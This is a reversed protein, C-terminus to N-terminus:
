TSLAFNEWFSTPQSIAGACIIAGGGMQVEDSLIARPHVLRQPRLGARLYSLALSARIDPDGIALVFRVQKDLNELAWDDNGLVPLGQVREEGSECVFGIVEYTPENTSAAKNIDEILWLVERAFGGAGVIVLKKM